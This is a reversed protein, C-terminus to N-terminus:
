SGNDEDELEFPEAELRRGKKLLIEVKHEAEELQKRCAESLKVGKEFKELAEELPMEGSELNEVIKELEDLGAEFSPPKEEKKAM